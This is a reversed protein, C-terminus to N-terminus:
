RIKASIERLFIGIAASQLASYKRIIKSARHRHSKSVYARRFSLCPSHKKQFQLFM